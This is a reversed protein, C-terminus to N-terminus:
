TAQAPKSSRYPCSHNAQLSGLERLAVTSASQSTAVGSSSIFTTQIASAPPFLFVFRHKTSTSSFLELRIVLHEPSVTRHVSLQHLCCSLTPLRHWCSTVGLSPHSSTSFRRTTTNGVMKDHASCFSGSSPKSFPHFHSGPHPLSKLMCAMVSVVM